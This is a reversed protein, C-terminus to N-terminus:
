MLRIIEVLAPHLARLRITSYESTSSLKLLAPIDNNFRRRRDPPAQANPPLNAITNVASAELAIRARSSEGCSSPV